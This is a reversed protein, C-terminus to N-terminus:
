VKNGQDWTQIAGQLVGRADPDTVEDLSGFAHGDLIFRVDGAPSSKVHLGRQVWPTGEIVKQLVQDIQEAISLVPLDPVATIERMVKYQEFPNMSPTRLPRQAEARIEELTKPAQVPQLPATAPPMSPAQAPLEAVREALSAQGMFKYFDKLSALL